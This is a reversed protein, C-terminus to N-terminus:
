EPDILMMMLGMKAGHLQPVVCDLKGCVVCGVRPMCIPKYQTSLIIPGHLAFMYMYM